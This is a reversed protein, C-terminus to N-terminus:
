RTDDGRSGLLRAVYRAILDIELNVRQGPQAAGFSTCALTHPIINVGFGGPLIENVTLSVGDVAVSGKAAIFPALARPVDIVFRVSEAEPRRQTLRGIGDVHGAVL